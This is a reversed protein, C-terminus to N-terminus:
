RCKAFMFCARPESSLNPHVTYRELRAERAFGAKMLARQSPINETDCSAQVRFIGSNALAVSAFARIAEPMYGKGWHARALVYGIDVTPGLVRAELMGIANDSGQETISYPRRTGAQWSEICSAIFERTVSECAHPKWIMFRCVEPDQTYARFISGADAEVPRRLALRATGIQEPLFHSV